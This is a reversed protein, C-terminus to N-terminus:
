KPLTGSAPSFTFAQRPIDGRPGVSQTKLETAKSHAGTSQKDLSRLLDGTRNWLPFVHHRPHPFLEPGRQPFVDPSDWPLPGEVPDAVIEGGGLFSKSGMHGGVVPWSRTGEQFIPPSELPRNPVTTAM